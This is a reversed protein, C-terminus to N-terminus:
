LRRTPLYAVVTQQMQHGQDLRTNLETSADVHSCVKVSFHSVFFIVKVGIQLKTVEKAARSATLTSCCFLLILAFVKMTFTDPIRLLILNVGVLRIGSHVPFVM